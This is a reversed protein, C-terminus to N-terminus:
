NDLMKPKFAQSTMSLHGCLIMYFSIMIIAIFIFSEQVNYFTVRIM